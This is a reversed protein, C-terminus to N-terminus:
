LSALLEDLSQYWPAINSSGPLPVRHMVALKQSYHAHRALDNIKAFLFDSWNGTKKGLCVALIDFQDVGYYRSSPDSKAARTKETEVRHAIPIKGERYDENRVNKCEILLAKNSKSSWITFDPFGNLDHEEYRMIIGERQLGKIKRVLHVEAVAGELAVKLRFRRSIADLLEVATLGYKVELRHPVGEPHRKM